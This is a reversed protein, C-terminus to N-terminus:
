KKIGAPTNVSYEDFSTYTNEQQEKSQAEQHTRRWALREEPPAKKEGLGGLIYAMYFTGATMALLFGIVAFTIIIDSVSM